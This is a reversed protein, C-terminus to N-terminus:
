NFGHQLRLPRGNVKISYEYLSTSTLDSGSKGRVSGALKPDIFVELRWDKHVITYISGNHAENLKMKPYSAEGDVVFQATQASEDFDLDVVLKAVAFSSPDNLPDQPLIIEWQVQQVNGRKKMMWRFADTEVDPNLRIKYRSLDADETSFGGKGKSFGMELDKTDSSEHDTPTQFRQAADNPSWPSGENSRLNTNLETESDIEHNYQQVNNLDKQSLSKAIKGFLGAMETAVPETAAVRPSNTSTLNWTNFLSSLVYSM